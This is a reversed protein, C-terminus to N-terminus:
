PSWVTRAILKLNLQWSTSTTWVYEFVPWYRRGDACWLNIVDDVSSFTDTDRVFIALTEFVSWDAKGLRWCPRHTAGCPIALKVYTPLHDSGCLYGVHHGPSHRAHQDYSWLFVLRSSMFTLRPAATSSRPAWSGLSRCLFWEKRAPSRTEWYRIVRM